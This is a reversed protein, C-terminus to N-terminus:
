GPRNKQGRKRFRAAAPRGGPPSPTSLSPAGMCCATTFRTSDLSDLVFPFAAQGVQAVGHARAALFTCALLM